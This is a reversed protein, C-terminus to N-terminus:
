DKTQQEGSKPTESAPKENLQEDVTPKKPFAPKKGSGTYLRV